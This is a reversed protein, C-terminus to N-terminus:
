SIKAVFQVLDMEKRKGLSVDIYGELYENKIM